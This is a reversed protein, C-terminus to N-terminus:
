LSKEARTIGNLSVKEGRQVSFSRSKGSMFNSLGKDIFEKM